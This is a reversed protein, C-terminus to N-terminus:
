ETTRMFGRTAQLLYIGGIITKTEWTVENETMTAKCRHFLLYRTLTRLFFRKDPDLWLKEHPRLTFRFPPELNLGTMEARRKLAELTGERIVARTEEPSPFWDKDLDKVPVGVCLPCLALAEDVAAQNGILALLPTGMFVTLEIGIEGVKLDNITVEAFPWAITHPTIGGGGAMAHQGVIIMGFPTGQIMRRPKSPLYPRRIARVNNPLQDVLVNPTRKMMDHADNLVIKDIGFENAADCVALVDSTICARGQDKWADSGHVMAGKNELSIGSAGEIDCLVYLQRRPTSV